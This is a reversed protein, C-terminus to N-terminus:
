WVAPRGLAADPLIEWSLRHERVLRAWVEPTTAAQAAVFGKVLAPTADDVSGRVVWDFTARLAPDATRPHALRLLDRHSWGERQRYKVVKYALDDAEHSTYWGA